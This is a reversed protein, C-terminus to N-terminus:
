KDIFRMHSGREIMARVEKNYANREERTMGKLMHPGYSGNERDEQVFEDGGRINLLKKGRRRMLTIVAREVRAAEQRGQVVCLVKM